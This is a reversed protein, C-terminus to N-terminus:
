ASGGRAMAQEIHAYLGKMARCFYGPQSYGPDALYRHFKCGGNCMANYRCTECEQPVRSTAQVFEQMRNTNAISELPEFVTGVKTSEDTTFCDCLHINGEPTVTFYLSCDNTNTCARRPVGVKWRFFEDFERISIGKIGKATWVDFFRTLFQQYEEPSVSHDTDLIGRETVAAPLFGMDRIGSEIFFDFIEEERGLTSRDVVCLIGFQTNTQRLFRVGRLIRNFAGPERMNRHAMHLDMNGDLSVGVRFGHSQFFNVWDESLLVGNTQVNNSIGLNKKNYTRQLTLIDEFFEKGLLLPEGGHWIFHAHRENHELLVRITETLVRDSMTNQTTSSDTNTFHYCYSCKLNCNNTVKVIFCKDETGSM